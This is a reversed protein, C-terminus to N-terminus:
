GNGGLRHHGPYLAQRGDSFAGGRLFGARGWHQKFSNQLARGDGSLSGATAITQWNCCTRTKRARPLLRSVLSPFPLQDITLLRQGVAHVLADFTKQKQNYQIRVGALPQRPEIEYEPGLALVDLKGAKHLALLRMISEAPVAAYNDIFVDKLHTNFREVDEDSMHELLDQFPEHCRLITYLHAVTHKGDLNALAEDLNKQAWAFPCSLPAELFVWM